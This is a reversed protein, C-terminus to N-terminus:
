EEPAEELGPEDLKRRPTKTPAVEEVRPGWLETLVPAFRGTYTVVPRADAERWAPGAWVRAYPHLPLVPVPGLRAPWSPPVPVPGLGLGALRADLSRYTRPARADAVLVTSAGQLGGLVDYLAETTAAIRRAYDEALPGPLATVLLPFITAPPVGVFALTYGDRAGVDNTWEAEDGCPHFGGTALVYTAGREHGVVRQEGGRLDDLGAVQSYETVGHLVVVDAETAAVVARVAANGVTPDVTWQLLRVPAEPMRLAAACRAVPSTWDPPVGEHAAVALPLRLGAAFGIAGFSFGFSLGVRGAWRATAVAWLLLVLVLPEGHLVLASARHAEGAWGALAGAGALGLAVAAPALFRSV